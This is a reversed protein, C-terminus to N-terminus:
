VYKAVDDSKSSAATLTAAMFEVPFHTKMWATRYALLAYVVSHSKNFGYRGFPLILAWLEEAKKRPTGAKVAKELFKDGEAKLLSEDKKGIAKRLKDAEGPSYGAVARAALMVQEQYVLVGYTDKLIPELAPLPYEFKKGRRREIYVDVTGADLAGPRYLANLAALDDFVS